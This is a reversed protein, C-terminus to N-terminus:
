GHSAEHMARLSASGFSMGCGSHSCTFNGSSLKKESKDKADANKNSSRSDSKNDPKRHRGVM